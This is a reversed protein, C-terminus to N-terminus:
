GGQQLFIICNPGLNRVTRTVLTEMQSRDIGQTRSLLNQENSNKKYIIASHSIGRICM